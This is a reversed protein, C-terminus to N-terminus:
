EAAAVNAVVFFESFRNDSSMRSENIVHGVILSYFFCRAHSSASATWLMPASQRRRSIHHNETGHSRTWTTIKGVKIKWDNGASRDDHCNLVKINRDHWYPQISNAHLENAMEITNYIPAYQDRWWWRWDPSMVSFIILQWCFIYKIINTKRQKWLM